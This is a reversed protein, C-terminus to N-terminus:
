KGLEGSAVTKDAVHEQEVPQIKVSALVKELRKFVEARDVPEVGDATGYGATGLGLVFEYCAGNEYSHYYQAEAQKVANASFDSTMEMDKSGVKVKEADVPEGDANRTDVFAFHSCEQESLSRNVHVNFFASTFDTGPYSAAPLAVTAVAVGGPQVFNMPVAGMDAFEPQAKDGTALQCKRPYVFSVGSNADSYTVVTPRKKHVKKPATATASATTTTTPTTSTAAPAAPTEVPESVSVLAPKASQKSCASLGLFVGLIVFGALMALKQQRSWSSLMTGTFTNNTTAKTTSKWITAM